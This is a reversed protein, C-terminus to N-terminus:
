KRRTVAPNTPWNASFKAPERGRLQAESYIAPRPHGAFQPPRATKQGPNASSQMQALEWNGDVGQSALGSVALDLM